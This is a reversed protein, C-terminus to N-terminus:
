PACGYISLSGPIANHAIRHRLVVILRMSSNGRLAHYILWTASNAPSPQMESDTSHLPAEAAHPPFRSTAITSPADDMLWLADVHERWKAPPFADGSTHAQPPTFAAPSNSLINCARIAATIARMTAKRLVFRYVDRYCGSRREQPIMM